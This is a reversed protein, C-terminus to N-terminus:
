EEAGEEIVVKRYRGKFLGKQNRWISTCVVSEKVNTIRSLEAMTDAVAVPLEYKDPTVEMYLTM